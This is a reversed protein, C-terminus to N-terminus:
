RGEGAEADPRQGCIGCHEWTNGAADRAPQDDGDLATVWQHDCGPATNHAHQAEATLRFTGCAREVEALAETPTAGPTAIAHELEALFGALDEDDMRAAWPLAPPYAGAPRKEPEPCDLAELELQAELVEVSMPLKGQRMVDIAVQFGKRRQTTAEAELEAVRARLEAHDADAVNVAADALERVTGTVWPRKIFRELAPRAAAEYRERREQEGEGTDAAQYSRRFLELRTRSTFRDGPQPTMPESM